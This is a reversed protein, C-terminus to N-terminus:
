LPPLGAWCLLTGVIASRRDHARNLRGRHSYPLPWPGERRFVQAGVHAPTSQRAATTMIKGHRSSRGQCSPPRSAANRGNTTNELVRESPGSVAVLRRELNGCLEPKPPVMRGSQVDPNRRAFQFGCQRSEAMVQRQRHRGVKERQVGSSSRNAAFLKFGARGRSPWTATLAPVRFLSPRADPRSNVPSM